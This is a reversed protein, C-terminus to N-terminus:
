RDEEFLSEKHKIYQVFDTNPATKYARFLHLLTDPAEEGRASLQFM